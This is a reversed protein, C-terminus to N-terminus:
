RMGPLTFVGTQQIMQPDSRHIATFLNVGKVLPDGQGPLKGGVLRGLGEFDSTAHLEYLQKLPIGSVSTFKPFFDVGNRYYDEASFVEGLGVEEVLRRITITENLVEEFHLYGYYTDTYVAGGRYKKFQENQGSVPSSFSHSPNNLLTGNTRSEVDLHGWEHWLANILALGASNNQLSAQAKLKELDIFVKKSDYHTYGWQTPTPTYRPEVKRVSTVYEQTKDFLTTKDTGVLDDKRVRPTKTLKLYEDAMVDRFSSLKNKDKADEWSFALVKEKFTRKDQEPSLLKVGAGTAVAVVAAGAGLIVSRRGIRPSNDKAVKKQAREEQRRERRSQKGGSEM